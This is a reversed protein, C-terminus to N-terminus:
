PNFMKLKLKNDIIFMSRFLTLFCLKKKSQFHYIKYNKLKSFLHLVDIRESITLKIRGVTQFNHILPLVGHLNFCFKLLVQLLMPVRQLYCSEDLFLFILYSNIGLSMLFRNQKDSIRNFEMFLLLILM